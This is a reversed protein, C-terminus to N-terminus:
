PVIEFAFPAELNLQLFDTKTPQAYVVKPHVSLQYSGAAPKFFHIGGAGFTFRAVVQLQNPTLDVTTENAPPHLWEESFMMNRPVPRGDNPESPKTMLLWQYLQSPKISIMETSNNLMSVEITFSDKTSFRPKSNLDGNLLAFKVQVALAKQSPPPLRVSSVSSNHSFWDNLKKFEAEGFQARLQEIANRITDDRQKQLDQLANPPAANPSAKGARVDARYASIIEQARQDLKDTESICDEAIQDFVRAMTESLELRRHLMARYDPSTQVRTSPNNQDSPESSPRNRSIPPHVLQRFLIFYQTIVIEDSRAASGNADRVDQAAAYAGVSLLLTFISTSQLLSRIWM